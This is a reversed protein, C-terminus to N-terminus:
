NEIMTILHKYVNENSFGFHKFLDSGPASKGYSEMGIMCGRPGVYRFWSSTIAAEIVMVKQFDPPLVRDLYKQPQQQFIELCPISVVRVSHGSESAKIAANMALHVESGTAIIIADLQENAGDKLVYGGRSIKKIQEESREWQSLTQRTLVLATPNKRNEVASRWAFSTELTDCPRWVNMGPILRLSPLHEVPQHTPGDEGLGISDHSFIYIVKLGMLASLRLSPKCYDLFILFTGGYPLIGGHLAMGNMIGAMAHERVGYHIYNGKFNAPKIIKSYKTKTNNSGSLDASGGILEPLNKTIAELVSASAQRSAVNPKLDFFKRKEKNIIKNLNKPLKENIIRSFEDRVKKSKKNYIITWKKELLEGKKGIERWASLIEKPIEFPKHKWKLKKRVLTVEEDGLAAGHSSAKGSKNPSGYGIITKCSILSPKKSKLTKKIAKSIQKENHGNVEQFNWGYSEFRKKYNDSVALTTSGDISIKNNDFFVVLNKLKLHGALSMAEHSIGEMLDGDSAIVYTKHNVLSSGFKKKLIEEAIAMGIANSLGQGLPGTTTEIGSNKKYEPHGACISNLQRFNQIDKLSISKYGTLYLLSYLLMSGHGASLVFRDRNIWGPNKPNFRLYYKFLVTAVDAMGMPLGPHGSNAKEVADISIFRITNSLEKLLNNV